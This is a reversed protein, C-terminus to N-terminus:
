YKNYQIQKYKDKKASLNDLYDKHTQYGIEQFVEKTPGLSELVYQQVCHVRFNIILLLLSSSGDYKNASPPGLHSWRM